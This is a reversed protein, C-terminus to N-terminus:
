TDKKQTANTEEQEEQSACLDVLICLAFVALLILALILLITSLKMYSGEHHNPHIDCMM